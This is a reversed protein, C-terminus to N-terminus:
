SKRRKPYFVLVTHGRSEEVRMDFHGSEVVLCRGRLHPDVVSTGLFVPLLRERDCISRISDGELFEFPTPPFRDPFRERLIAEAAPSTAALKAIWDDDDPVEEYSERFLDASVPLVIGGPPDALRGQGSASEGVGHGSPVGGLMNKEAKVEFGNRELLRKAATIDKKSTM